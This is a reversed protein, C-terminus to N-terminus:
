NNKELTPLISLIGERDLTTLVERLDVEGDETKVKNFRTELKRTVTARAKNDLKGQRVLEDLIQQNTWRPNAAKLLGVENILRIHFGPTYKQPRGANPRRGGRPM